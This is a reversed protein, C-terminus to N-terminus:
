NGNGEREARPDGGWANCAYVWIRYNIEDIGDATWQAWYRPGGYNVLFESLYRLAEDESAANGTGDWIILVKHNPTESAATLELRKARFDWKIMGHFRPVGNQQVSRFFVLCPAREAVEQLCLVMARDRSIPNSSTHTTTQGLRNTRSWSLRGSDEVMWNVTGDNISKWQNPTLQFAGVLSGSDIVIRNRTCYAIRHGGFHHFQFQFVGPYDRELNNVVKAAFSTCRGTNGAWTGRFYADGGNETILNARTRYDRPRTILNNYTFNFRGTIYEIMKISTYPGNHFASMWAQNAAGLANTGQNSM